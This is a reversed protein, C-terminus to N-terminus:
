QWGGGAIFAQVSRLDDQWCGTCPMPVRFRLAEHYILEKIDVAQWYSEVAAPLDVPTLVDGDTMCQEYRTVLAALEWVRPM